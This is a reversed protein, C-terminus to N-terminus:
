RTTICAMSPALPCLFPFMRTSLSFTIVVIIVVVHSCIFTKQAEIVRSFLQLSRRREELLSLPTPIPKLVSPFQTNLHIKCPGGGFVAICIMYFKPLKSTCYVGILWYYRECLWITSAYIDWFRGFVGTHHLYNHM